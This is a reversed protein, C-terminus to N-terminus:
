NRYFSADLAECRVSDFQVVEATPRGVTLFEIPATKKVTEKPALPGLFVGGSPDRYGAIFALKEDKSFFLSCVVRTVLTHDSDNKISFIVSMTKDKEVFADIFKVELKVCHWVIEYENFNINEGIMKIVEYAYTQQDSLCLNSANKRTQKAYYKYKSKDIKKFDRFTISIIKEPTKKIETCYVYSKRTNGLFGDAPGEVTDHIIFSKNFMKCYDESIKWVDVPKKYSLAFGYEGYEEKPSTTGCSLLFLFSVYKLFKNVKNYKIM